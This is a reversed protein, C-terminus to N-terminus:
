QETAVENTKKNKLRLILLGVILVIASLPLSVVVADVYQINSDMFMVVPGIANPDV